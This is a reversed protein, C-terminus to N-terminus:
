DEFMKQDTINIDNITITIINSNDNDCGIGNCIFRARYQYTGALLDADTIYSNGTTLNTWAGSTGPRFQWQVEQCDLGGSTTATFNITEGVCIESEDASIM